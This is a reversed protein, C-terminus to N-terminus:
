RGTKRGKRIMQKFHGDIKQDASFPLTLSPSPSLCGFNLAPEFAPLPPNIPTVHREYVQRVGCFYRRRKFLGRLIAFCSIIFENGSKEM